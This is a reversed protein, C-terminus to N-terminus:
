MMLPWSTPGLVRRAAFSSGWVMSSYSAGAKCGDNSSLWCDVSRFSGVGQTLRSGQPKKPLLKHALEPWLPDWPAAGRVHPLAARGATPRKREGGRTGIQPRSPRGGHGGRVAKPEVQHAGAGM